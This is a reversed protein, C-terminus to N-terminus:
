TSQKALQKVYIPYLIGFAVFCIGGLFGIFFLPDGDFSLWSRQEHGLKDLIASREHTKFSSLIFYGPVIVAPLGILIVIWRFVSMSPDAKLNESIKQTLLTQTCRLAIMGLLFTFTLSMLLQVLNFPERNVVLYINYLCYVVVTFIPILLFLLIARLM